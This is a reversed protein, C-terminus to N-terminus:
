LDFTQNYNKDARRSGRARKGLAEVVWANVSEGTSGAANEILDKLSPPLRLTIRAGFDEDVPRSSSGGRVETIRLTPDGDALVIDVSHDPLQARVEGAAQEALDLAAVRLAPGLAEVLHSVAAEITPDASSIGSNNLLAARLSNVVPQVHM